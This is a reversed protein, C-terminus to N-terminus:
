NCRNYKAYPSEIRKTQTKQKMLKRLEEQSVKVSKKTSKKSMIPNKNM